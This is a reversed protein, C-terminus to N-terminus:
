NQAATCFGKKPLDAAMVSPYLCSKFTEDDQSSCRLEMNLSWEHRPYGQLLLPM